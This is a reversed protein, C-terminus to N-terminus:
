RPDDQCTPYTRTASASDWSWDNSSNPHPHRLQIRTRPDDSVTPMVEGGAAKAHSLREGALRAKSLNYAGAKQRRLIMADVEGPALTWSVGGHLHQM